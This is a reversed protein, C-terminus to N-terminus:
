NNYDSSCQLSDYYKRDSCVPGDINIIYHKHMDRYSVQFLHSCHFMNTIRAEDWWVCWVSLRMDRSFTQVTEVCFKMIM